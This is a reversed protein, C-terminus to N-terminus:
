WRAPTIGDAGAVAAVSCGGGDIMGGAECPGAPGPPERERRRAFRPSLRRRPSPRGRSVGGISASGASGGVGPGADGVGAPASGALGSGAPRAGGPAIGGLVAEGLADAPMAGAGGTGCPASGALPVAAPSASSAGRATSGAPRVGGAGARCRLGDGGASARDAGPWDPGCDGPGGSVWGLGAVALPREAPGSWGTVGVAGAGGAGCTALRGGDAVSGGAGSADGAAAPMPVLWCM